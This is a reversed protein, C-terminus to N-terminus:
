TSSAATPAPRGLLVARGRPRRPHSDGVVARAARRQPHPDSRRLERYRMLYLIPAFTEQQVIPADPRIEVLAPRVYYGGAPVGDTVRGGGHM